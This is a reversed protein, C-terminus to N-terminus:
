QAIKGCRAFHLQSTNGKVAFLKIIEINKERM